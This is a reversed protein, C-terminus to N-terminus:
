QKEKARAADIAHKNRGKPYATFQESTPAALLQDTRLFIEGKQKGKSFIIWWEKWDTLCSRYKELAAEATALRSQLLEAKNKLLQMQQGYTPSETANKTGNAIISFFEERLQEPIERRAWEKLREWRQSYWEQTHQRSEQAQELEALLQDIRAQAMGPSIEWAHSELEEQAQRLMFALSGKADPNQQWELEKIVRALEKNEAQLPAIAANHAAILRAAEVDPIDVAIWEKGCLISALGLGGKDHHATWDEGTTGQCTCPTSLADNLNQAIVAIENKAKPSLTNLWSTWTLESVADTIGTRLGACGCCTASDIATQILDASRVIMYRLGPHMHYVGNHIDEACRLAIEGANKPKTM